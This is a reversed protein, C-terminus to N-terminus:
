SNNILTNVGPVEGIVTVGEVHNANQWREYEQPFREKFKKLIISSADLAEVMYIQNYPIIVEQLGTGTQLTGFTPDVKILASTNFKTLLTLTDSDDTDIVLWDLYCYMDTNVIIRKNNKVLDIIQERITM